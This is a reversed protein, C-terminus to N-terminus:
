KSIVERPYIMDCNSCKAAYRKPERKDPPLFIAYDDDVTELRWGGCFVRHTSRDQGFVSSHKINGCIPCANGDFPLKNSERTREITEGAEGETVCYSDMARLDELCLCHAQEMLKAMESIIGNCDDITILSEVLKGGDEMRAKYKFNM